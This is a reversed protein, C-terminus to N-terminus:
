ARVRKLKRKEICRDCAWISRHKSSVRFITTERGCYPCDGGREMNLDPLPRNSVFIPFGHELRVSQRNRGVLEPM